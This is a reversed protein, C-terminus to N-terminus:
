KYVYGIGPRVTGHRGSRVETFTDFANNWGIDDSLLLGDKNLWEYALEYEFMMCPHSHESDHVFLDIGALKALLKPLERQSKGITLDWRSRLTEPIIWGPSKDRPIAAGGYEDFTEQRYESLSEDAHFPCDISYLRGTGNMDLAALISLTSFGNCVGTEVVVAPSLARVLSYYDRAVATSIAGMESDDTMKQHQRVGKDIHESVAGEDFETVYQEYEARSEFFQHVFEPTNRNDPLPNLSDLHESSQVRQVLTKLLGSSQSTAM